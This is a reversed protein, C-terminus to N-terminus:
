PGASPLDSQEPGSRRVPDREALLRLGARVVESASCYRGSRVSDRIYADLEETLSFNRTPTSPMAPMMLLLM